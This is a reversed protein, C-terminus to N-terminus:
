ELGTEGSLDVSKKLGVTKIGALGLFLRVHFGDDRAGRHM